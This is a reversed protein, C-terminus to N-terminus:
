LDPPHKLLTELKEPTILPVRSMTSVALLDADGSVLADANAAYALRLFILDNPARCPPLKARTKPEALTEAHQIYM